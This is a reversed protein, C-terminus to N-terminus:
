PTGERVAMGDALEYNGLVVVPGNPALAGRIAVLGDSEGSTSVSVRHAHGNLVQYVYSGADDSLVAQRPVALTQRRTLTIVGKVRSGPALAGVLRVVADVRQSSPDIQSSVTDVVGDAVQGPDFIANLRVKMGTRVQRVEEPLLGLRVQLANDAVMQGLTAGAAPRDGPLVALSTVVGAVPAHVTTVATGTGLAKQAALAQEADRVTHQAADVQANTALQRVLLSQQRALDRRAFALANEAQTYAQYASADTSIRLLPQDKHVAQGINILVADVRGAAPLSLNVVQGPQGSVTGYGTLTEVMEHSVLPQTAVLASPPPSADDAEVAQAVLALMLLLSFTARM